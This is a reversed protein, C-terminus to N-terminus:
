ARMAAKRSSPAIVRGNFVGRERALFRPLTGYGALGRKGSTIAISVTAWTEAYPARPIPGSKRTPWRGTRRHYADAWALVQKVSLDPLQLRSRMGRKEALLGALSWGGSQGRLGSNLAKDVARWTEGPADMIPGSDARPWRGTRAKHADAWQLLKRITFPPLLGKHRRGRHLLLVVALSSGGPQGRCGSKFAGDVIAWTLGLQGPIKGDDRMPYRGIRKYFADSWALVDKITIPSRAMIISKQALPHM